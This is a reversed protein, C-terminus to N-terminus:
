TLYGMCCIFTDKTFIVVWGNQCIHRDEWMNRCSLILWIVLRKRDFCEPKSFQPYLSYTMIHYQETTVWSGSAPWWLHDEVVIKVSLSSSLMWCWCGCPQCGKQWSRAQVLSLQVLAAKLAWLGRPALKGLRDKCPGSRARATQSSAVVSWATSRLHALFELSLLELCGAPPWPDWRDKQPDEHKRGM